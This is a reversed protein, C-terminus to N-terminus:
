IGFFSVSLKLFSLHSESWEDSQATWMNSKVESAVLNLSNFLYFFVYSVTVISGHATYFYM